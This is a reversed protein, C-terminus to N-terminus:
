NFQLSVYAFLSARLHPLSFFYNRMPDLADPRDVFKLTTDRRDYRKEEQQTTM